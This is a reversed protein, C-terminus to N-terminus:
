TYPAVHEMRTKMQSKSRTRRITLFRLNTLNKTNLLWCHRSDWGRRNGCGLTVVRRAQKGSRLNALVQCVGAASESPSRSFIPGVVVASVSGERLPPPGHRGRRGEPIPVCSGPFVLQRFYLSADFYKTLLDRSNAKLDGFTDHNSFSTRSITARTSIARLERMQQDNLARDIARFEYYQYESM